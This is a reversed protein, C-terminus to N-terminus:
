SGQGSPEPLVPGPMAPAGFTTQVALNVIAPYTLQGVQGEHGHAVDIFHQYIPVKVTLSAIVNGFAYSVMGGALVDTRGVNGDQQVIGNWREPQENLIDAGVGARLRPVVGVDGSVGGGYRNGARYGYKNETLFLLTQAYASLGIEGLRAGADVALVPYFTGTGFQIHQHPLGARGRAFPDEETSGLPVGVGGRGTVIFKDVSWTARGLLWPDAVGFLTENRHHINQYDPEFPAGDLRRFVITTKLLRIPAQIEAALLQTIGIAVVPRVEGIYFRQDHLQPPEARQNCIPGIDPCYESHVVRMTTGSLNVAVSIEGPLLAFNGARATPLNPNSCGPCAQAVRSTALGLGGLLLAVALHKM